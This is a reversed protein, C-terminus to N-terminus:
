RHSLPLYRENADCKSICLLINRWQDEDNALNCLFNLKAELIMEIEDYLHGRIISIQGNLNDTSFLFEKRRSTNIDSM